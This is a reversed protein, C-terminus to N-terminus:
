KKLKKASELAEPLVTANMSANIETHLAGNLFEDLTAKWVNPTQGPKFHEKLQVETPSLTLEFTHWSGKLYQWFTRPEAM